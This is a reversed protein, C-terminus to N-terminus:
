VLMHAEWLSYWLWALCVGSLIGLTLKLFRNSFYFMWKICKCLVYYLTNHIGVSYGCSVLIGMNTGARFSKLHEWHFYFLNTLNYYLVFLALFTTCLPAATSNQSATKCCCKFNVRLRTLQIPKSLILDYTFPNILTPFFCCLHLWLM